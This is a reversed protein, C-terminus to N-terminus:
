HWWLDIGSIHRIAKVLGFDKPAITQRKRHITCLNAAEFLNVLYTEAAEQIAMLASSQFRLGVKYDQAIELILWGFSLLPVLLNVSRQFHRIERLAVIGLKHKKPKKLGGTPPARGGGGGKRPAQSAQPVHANKSFTASKHAKGGGSGSALKKARAAEILEKQTPM